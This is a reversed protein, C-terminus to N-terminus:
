TCPYRLEAFNNLTHNTIDLHKTDQKTAIPVNIKNTNSTVNMTPAHTLRHYINIYLTLIHM